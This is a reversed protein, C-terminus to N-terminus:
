QILEDARLLLSKPMTLGIAKATKLNIIFEVKTPQEVPLGTPNAGKLVKVLYAAGKRYIDAYDAGYSMLAGGSIIPRTQVIMPIRQKIAFEGLDARAMYASDSDVLICDVREHLVTALASRADQPSDLVVRVLNINLAKAAEDLRKSMAEAKPAGYRGLLDDQLVAVRASGPAVAKLLELRKSSLEDNFDTLGTVNGGPKSLSVRVEHEFRQAPAFRDRERVQHDM